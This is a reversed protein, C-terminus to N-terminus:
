LPLNEVTKVLQVSLLFVCMTACIIEIASCQM